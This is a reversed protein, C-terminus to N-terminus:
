VACKEEGGNKLKRQLFRVLNDISDLNEPVLEDDEVSIGFKEEVFEIVELMGTSDVVGSELFSTTDEVDTGQESFLFNDQLFQRIVARVDM